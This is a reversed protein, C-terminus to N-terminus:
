SSLRSLYASMLFFCLHLFYTMDWSFFESIVVEPASNDKNPSESQKKFIAKLKIQDASAIVVKGEESSGEIM